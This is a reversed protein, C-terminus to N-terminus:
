GPESLWETRPAHRGPAVRRSAHRSCPVRPTATRWPRTSPWRRLSASTPLCTTWDTAPASVNCMITDGGYEEPVVLEMLAQRVQNPDVGPKDCKNVAVIIQVGAAKSHNIAEITQPMIGDDAAVVLM